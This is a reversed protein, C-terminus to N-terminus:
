HTNTETPLRHVQPSQPQIGAFKGKSSLVLNTYDPWASPEGAQGAVVTLAGAEQSPGGSEQSPNSSEQSLGGFTSIRQRPQSSPPLSYTLVSDYLIQPLSQPTNERAEKPTTRIVPTNVKKYFTHNANYTHLSIYSCTGRM